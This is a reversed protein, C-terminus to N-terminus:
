LEALIKKVDRIPRRTELYNKIGDLESVDKYWRKLADYGELCDTKVEIALRVIFFIGFDGYYPENGCMFKKEGLIRSWDELYPVWNQYFEEVAQKLQAGELLNAIQAINKGYTGSLLLELSSEYLSDCFAAEMPDKPVVGYESALYRVISGSQALMRDNIEVVPVKSYPFFNEQKLKRFKEISMPVTEYQINKYQLVMHIVEARALYGEFYYLKLVSGAM